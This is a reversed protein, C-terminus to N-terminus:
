SFLALVDLANELGIRTIDEEVRVAVRLEPSIHRHHVDNVASPSVVSYHATQPQRSHSALYDLNKAINFADSCNIINNIAENTPMNVVEFM